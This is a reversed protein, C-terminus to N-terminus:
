LLHGGGSRTEAYRQAVIREAEDDLLSETPVYNTGLSIFTLTFFLLACLVMPGLIILLTTSLIAFPMVLAALCLLILSVRSYRLYPQIDNAAMRELMKKRKKMERSIMVVDYVVSAAYFLLMVYLWWGIHQSGSHLYGIACTLYIATCLVTSVIVMHRRRPQTTEINYIGYAIFAFSPTYILMNVIAGLDDGSARIGGQIQALYQFALMFFAIVILWRSHEYRKNEWKVYLRSMVLLAANIVMFILCGFQLLYLTNM